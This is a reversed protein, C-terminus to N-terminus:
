LYIVGDISTFRGSVAPTLSEKFTRGKVFKFYAWVGGSAVALMEVVDKSAQIVDKTRTFDIIVSSFHGILCVMLALTSVTAFVPAFRLIKAQAEPLRKEVPSTPASPFPSPVLSNNQVVPTKTTQTKAHPDDQPM